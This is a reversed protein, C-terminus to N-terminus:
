APQWIFDSLSKSVEDFSMGVLYVQREDAKFKDAYGKAKIQNIADQASGNKSLKFEIVLIEEATKVTLDIQGKSTADEAKVDWGLATFCSYVIGAYFGEYQGIANNRYWDHPISAFHADFIDKFGDFNKSLFCKNLASLSRNKIYTSTGLQMFHSNLSSKVELNPYKLRYGYQTGITLVEDITLYGTQFLLTHLPINDVDFSSLSEESVEISEIEPVDYQKTEMLKILFSPTATEFWYNRYQYAKSCFLLIDFPNYVKQNEAGSFNYGNYWLKLKAKDVQGDILHEAFAQEMESQTYGCIDAFQPDLSIDNLNNLGSFLSVKSFKSVGTLFVFRLNSDQDKIVNYLGKLEDRMLKARVTDDISDLIPKDYEDVLLVVKHQFKVFLQEIVDAFRSSIDSYASNLDYNQCHKDLQYHVREAFQEPTKLLGSGFSLHIVPYQKYWDWHRELYLGDFVLKNGLFAQKLTDLFLTKGFRRPRSLFFYKGGTDVLNAVHHSKDIYIYSDCRLNELTSLGIPLKKM